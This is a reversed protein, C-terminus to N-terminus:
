RCVRLKRTSVDVLSMFARRLVAVCLSKILCVSFAFVYAIELLLNRPVIGSVAHLAAAASAVPRARVDLVDPGRAREACAAAVDFVM